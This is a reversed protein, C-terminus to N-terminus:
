QFYLLIRIVPKCASYIRSIFSLLCLILLPSHHSSKKPNILCMGLFLDLDCKSEKYKYPNIRYDELLKVMDTSGSDRAAHLASMEGDWEVEAGVRLLLDVASPCGSFVAGYVTEGRSNEANICAGRDLLLKICSTGELPPYMRGALWLLATRMSDSKDNVRAGRNILEEVCSTDERYASWMLPTIGDRGRANVDAGKDLLLETIETYGEGASKHIAQDGTNDVVGVQIEDCALLLKVIETKGELSAWM